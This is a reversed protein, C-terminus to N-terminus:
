EVRRFYAPVLAPDADFNLICTLQFENSSLIFRYRISAGLYKEIQKQYDTRVFQGIMYTERDNKTDIVSASVQAFADTYNKNWEPDINVIAISQFSFDGADNKEVGLMERKLDPFVRSERGLLKSAETETGRSFLECEYTTVRGEPPSVVPGLPREPKTQAYASALLSLAFVFSLIINKM